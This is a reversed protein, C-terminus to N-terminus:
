WIPRRTSPLPLLTSAGASPITSSSPTRMPMLPVRAPYNRSNQGPWTIKLPFCLHAPSLRSRSSYLRAMPPNQLSTSRALSWASMEPSSLFVAIPFIICQSIKALPDLKYTCLWIYNYYVAGGETMGVARETIGACTPIWRYCYRWVLHPDGVGRPYVGAPIWHMTMEALRSDMLFLANRCYQRTIGLKTHIVIPFM